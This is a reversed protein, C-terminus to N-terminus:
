KKIIKDSYIGYFNQYPEKFVKVGKERLFAENETVFDDFGNLDSIGYYFFRMRIESEKGINKYLHEIVNVIVGNDKNVSFGFIDLKITTRKKPGVFNLTCRLENLESNRKDKEDSWVINEINLNFKIDRFLGTANLWSFSGHLHVVKSSDRDPKLDNQKLEDWILDLYRTYNTTLCYDYKSFSIRTREDWKGKYKYSMLYRDIELTDLELLYFLMVKKFFSSIEYAFSRMKQKVIKLKKAKINMKILESTEEEIYEFLNEFSDFKELKYVANEFVAKWLEKDQGLEVIDPVKLRLKENAFKEIKKFKCKFPYRVFYKFFINFKFKSCHSIDFGNGILLIRM